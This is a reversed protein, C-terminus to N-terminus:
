GKISVLIKETEDESLPRGDRKVSLLVLTIDEREYKSLTIEFNKTINMIRKLIQKNNSFAIVILTSNQQNEFGECYGTNEVDQLCKIAMKILSTIEEIPASMRYFDEVSYYIDKIINDTTDKITARVMQLKDIDMKRMGEDFDRFKGIYKELVNKIAKYFISLDAYHMRDVRIDIVNVETNEFIRPPHATLISIGSQKELGELLNTIPTGKGSVIFIKFDSFMDTSAVLNIYVQNLHTTIYEKLLFPIIARLYHEFGGAAEIWSSKRFYHASEMNEIARKIKKHIDRKYYKGSPTSIELRAILIGDGTSFEKNYMLRFGPVVYNLTDLFDRLKYDREYAGITIGTLEEKSTKLNEIYVQIQGHSERVRKQIRLNNIILKAITSPSRERLYAMPRSSFFKIAEGTEDLLEPIELKRATKQIISLVEEYITLREAEISLLIKKAISGKSADKIKKLLEQKKDIFKTKEKPTEIKIAAILIAISYEKVNVVTGKVYYLNWGYQHLIGMTADALGAWDVGAVGIGVAFPYENIDQIDTFQIIISERTKGWSNVLHEFIEREKDESFLERSKYFLNDTDM